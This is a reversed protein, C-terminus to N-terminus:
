RAQLGITTFIDFSESAVKCVTDDDDDAMTAPAASPLLEDDDSPWRESPRESARSFTRSLRGGRPVIGIGDVLVADVVDDLRRRNASALAAAERAAAAAAASASTKNSISSSSSSCSRNAMIFAGEGGGVGIRSKLEGFADDGIPKTGIM